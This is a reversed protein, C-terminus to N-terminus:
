IDPEHYFQILSFIYQRTFDNRSGRYEQWGQWDSADRVWVDLPHEDGNWRGFHVKYDDINEILWIDRLSITM